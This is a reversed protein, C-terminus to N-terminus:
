EIFRALASLFQGEDEAMKGAQRKPRDCGVDSQMLIRRLVAKPVQPSNRPYRRRSRMTSLVAAGARNTGTPESAAMGSPVPPTALGDFRKRRHPAGTRRSLPGTARVSSALVALVFRSRPEGAHAFSRDTRLSLELGHRRRPRVGDTPKPAVKRRVGAEAGASKGEDLVLRVAGAKFEETFRRRVRRALTGAVRNHRGVRIDSM